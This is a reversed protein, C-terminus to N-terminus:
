HCRALRASRFLATAQVGGADAEVETRIGLPRGLRSLWRAIPRLPQLDIAGRARVLLRLQACLDGM